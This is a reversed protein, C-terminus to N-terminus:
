DQRIVLRPQVRDRCHLGHRQLLQAPLGHVHVRRTRERTRYRFDLENLRIGNSRRGAGLIQDKAMPDRVIPRAIQLPPIRREGHFLIKEVGVAENPTTDAFEEM